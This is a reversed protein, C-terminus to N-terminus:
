LWRDVRSKYDRYAEGFRWELYAEERAVVCHVAIALPLTLILIWSSRVVIGVGIYVLFMALYAPNRSWGYIGSTVLARAAGLVPTTASSFERIAVALGGIGILILFAANIASIWHMLGHRRIPFPLHLVHALAFGLLLAALFQVPPQAIVAAIQADGRQQSPITM